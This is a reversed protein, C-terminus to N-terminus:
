RGRSWGVNRKPTLRVALAVSAYAAFGIPDALALKLKHTLSFAPKDDNQLLEPYTRKIEEVGEDQRKRVRVLNRWGDVLPWTYTAHVGIREEPRFSLRVFTDDSIIEPFKDWRLRGSANVAFLGAGPVGSTLFPVKAYIRAYRRTFVNSTNALNLTGSAYRAECVNLASALQNLLGPSVTVDADLYVRTGAGALVDGANLAKMKGGDELEVVRLRWGQHRFAGFRSLAMEATKDRSGNSIVLVEVFGSCSWKSELISDLCRGIYEEENSAPVIVSIAPPADLRVQELIPPMIQLFLPM